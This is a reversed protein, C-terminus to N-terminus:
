DRGAEHLHEIYDKLQHIEDTLSEIQHEILDNLTLMGILTENEIIPLHRIDAKIMMSMARSVDDELQAVILKNTMANQLAIESLARTKDKLYCRYIDREAFIGVPQDREIVILASIKKETMLNVADDVSRHGAITHMSRSKKRLLAHLKM